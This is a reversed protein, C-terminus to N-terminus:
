PLVLRVQEFLDLNDASGLDAASLWNTGDQSFEYGSLQTTFNTYPSSGYLGPGSEFRFRITSNNLDDRFYGSVWTDGDIDSYFCAPTTHGNVSEIIQPTANQYPHAVQCFAAQQSASLNSLDSFTFNIYSNEPASNTGAVTAAIYTYSYGNVDGNRFIAVVDFGNEIQNQTLGEYKHAISLLSGTAGGFDGATDFDALIANFATKDADDPSPASNYDLTIIKYDGDCNSAETCDFAVDFDVQVPSSAAIATLNSNIEYAPALFGDVSVTSTTIQINNDVTASEGSTQTYQYSITLDGSAGNLNPSASTPDWTVLITDDGNAFNGTNQTENPIDSASVRTYSVGDVTLVDLEVKCQSLDGYFTESIPYCSLSSECDWVGLTITRATSNCNVVATSDHSTLAFSNQKVGVNITVNQSPDKAEAKDQSEEGLQCGTAAISLLIPLVLKKM